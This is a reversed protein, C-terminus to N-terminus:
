LLWLFSICHSLPYDATRPWASSVCKCTGFRWSWQHCHHCNLITLQGQGPLPCANAPGLRWSWQHCHHCNCCHDLPGSICPSEPAALIWPLRLPHIHIGPGNAPIFPVCSEEQVTFLTLGKCPHIPPMLTWRWYLTPVKASSAAQLCFFTYHCPCAWGECKCPRSCSNVHFRYVM